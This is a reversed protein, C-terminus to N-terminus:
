PEVTCTAQTKRSVGAVIASAERQFRRLEATTKARGHVRLKDARFDDEGTVHLVMTRYVLNNDIMAVFFHDYYYRRDSRDYLCEPMGGCFAFAARFTRGDDIEVGWNKLNSKCLAPTWTWEGSGPAHAGAPAALALAVLVGAM